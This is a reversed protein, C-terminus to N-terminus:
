QDHSQFYSKKWTASKSIKGLYEDHSSKLHGNSGGVYLAISLFLPNADFIWMPM